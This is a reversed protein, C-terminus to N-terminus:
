MAQKLIRILVGFLGNDKKDLRASGDKIRELVGAPFVAQYTKGELLKM